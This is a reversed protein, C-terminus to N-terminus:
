PLGDTGGYGAGSVFWQSPGVPNSDFRFGGQGFTIEDQASAGPFSGKPIRVQTLTALDSSKDVEARATLEIVGFHPEKEGPRHSVLHLLNIGEPAAETVAVWCTGSKGVCM